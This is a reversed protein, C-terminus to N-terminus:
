KAEGAMLVKCSRSEFYGVLGVLLVGVVVGTFIGANLGFGIGVQVTDMEIGGRSPLVSQYYNPCFYELAAGIGAGAIACCGTSSAVAVCARLLTM